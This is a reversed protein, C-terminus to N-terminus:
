KPAARASFAAMATSCSPSSREISACSAICVKSFAQLESSCASTSCQAPIVFSCNRPGCQATSRPWIIENGRRDSAVGGADTKAARPPNADHRRPRPLQRRQIQRVDDKGPCDDRFHGGRSERRELASLTVAQSVTLLNKLDLATHWGPNYDRNGPVGVTRSCQWLKEISELARLMEDERRVIGVLDQM